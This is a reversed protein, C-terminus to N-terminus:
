IMALIDNIGKNDWLMERCNNSETTEMSINSVKMDIELHDLIVIILTVTNMYADFIGPELM